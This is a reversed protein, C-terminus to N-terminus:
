LLILTIKQLINNLVKTIMRFKNYLLLYFFFTFGHIQFVDSVFLVLKLRRPLYHIFRFVICAFNFLKINETMESIIKIPVM